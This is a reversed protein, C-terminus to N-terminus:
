ASAALHGQGTLLWWAGCLNSSLVAASTSLKAMVEITAMGTGTFLIPVDESGVFSPMADLIHHTRVDYPSESGPAAVRICTRVNIGAATWYGVSLETLWDPYPSVLAVSECGMGQLAVLIAGTASLTAIGTEDSISQCVERDRIPGLMYAAGTCAIWAATVGAGDFPNRWDVMQERYSETRDQLSADATSSFRSVIWQAAPPLLMRLEREVTLNRPPVMVGYVAALSTSLSTAGPIDRIM